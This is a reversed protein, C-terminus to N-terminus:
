VVGFARAVSLLLCGPCGILFALLWSEGWLCPKTGYTELGFPLSMDLLHVAVGHDLISPAGLFVLSYIVPIPVFLFMM